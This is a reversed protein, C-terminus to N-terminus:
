SVFRRDLATGVWGIVVCISAFLLPLAFGERTDAFLGALIPGLIQGAGFSATLIASARKGGAEMRASGEALTLAVIGLFTGGFTTAAFMVEIVTDANISVFIGSAQLAYATM